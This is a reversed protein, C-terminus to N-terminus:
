CFIKVCPLISCEGEPHPNGTRCTMLAVGLKAMQTPFDSAPDSPASKFIELAKGAYREFCDPVMWLTQLGIWICWKHSVSWFWYLGGLNGLLVFHEQISNVCVQLLSNMYCTNGLNKLGVHEPGHIPILKEGAETIRNFEFSMNVEVQPCVLIIYNFISHLAALGHNELQLYEYRHDPYDFMKLSLMGFPLVALELM